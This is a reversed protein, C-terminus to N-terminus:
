SKLKKAHLVVKLLRLGNFMLIINTKFFFNLVTEWVKSWQPQWRTQITDQCKERGFSLKFPDFLWNPQGETFASGFLQLKAILCAKFSIFGSFQSSRQAKIRNQESACIKMVNRSIKEVWTENTGRRKFAEERHRCFIRWWGGAPETASDSRKHVDEM